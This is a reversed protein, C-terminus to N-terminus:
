KKPNCLDEYAYTIAGVVLPIAVFIGVGLALAGLLMVPIGLLLLGFVRWWQRTITTRSTEMAEWFGLGKDIPLLFTFTYAVTLYIGPLILLVFGVTLFVYVLLGAVFLAGFAKSFGAFADGITTPQGRVTLLFFNFMGGALVGGFLPAVFYIGMFLTYSLASWLIGMLISVGVLPLFHAKLLAWSREYCSLIDLERAVAPLQALAAAAASGPASGSGTIEPIDAVRKWEDSGAAKVKTELNARGGALWARVQDATVPGYEKGDGGIITFM